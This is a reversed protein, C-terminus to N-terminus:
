GLVVAFADGQAGDCRGFMVLHLNHSAAGGVLLM